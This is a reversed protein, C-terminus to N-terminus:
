LFDLTATDALVAAPDRYRAAMAREHETALRAQMAAGLNRGRAVMRQGM